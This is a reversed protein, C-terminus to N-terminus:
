DERYFCNAKSFFVRLWVALILLSAMRNFGM